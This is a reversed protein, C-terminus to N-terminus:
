GPEGIRAAWWDPLGGPPRPFHRLEETLVEAPMPEGAPEIAYNFGPKLQGSERDLM